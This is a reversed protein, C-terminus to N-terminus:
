RTQKKVDGEIKLQQRQINKQLQAVRERRKAAAEQRRRPPM